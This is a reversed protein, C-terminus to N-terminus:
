SRRRGCLVTEAEITYGKWSDLKLALAADINELWGPQGPTFVAHPLLRKAGAEAGVSGAAKDNVKQRAAAMQENALFWDRPIGTCKSSAPGVTFITPPM